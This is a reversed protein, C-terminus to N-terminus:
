DHAVTRLHVGRHKSRMVRYTASPTTSRTRRLADTIHSAAHMATNRAADRVEFSAGCCGARDRMMVACYKALAYM